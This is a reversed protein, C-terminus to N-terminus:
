ILMLIVLCCRVLISSTIQLPVAILFTIPISRSVLNPASVQYILNHYGEKLSSCSSFGEIIMILFKQLVPRLRSESQKIIDRTVRCSADPNETVLNM